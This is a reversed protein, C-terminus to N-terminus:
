LAVIRSTPNTPAHPHYPESANLPVSTRMLLSTPPAQHQHTKKPPSTRPSARPGVCAGGRGEGPPLPSHRPPRPSRSRHNPRALALVRGVEARGPPSPPIGPPARAAHATSLVRLPWCVGWGPGGRHPPHFAQRSPPSEITNVSRPCKTCVPQFQSTGM